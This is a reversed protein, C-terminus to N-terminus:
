SKGKAAKQQGQQSVADVQKQKSSPESDKSNIELLHYLVILLMSLAGLFLALSYLTADSIM